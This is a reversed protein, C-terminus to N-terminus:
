HGAPALSPRIPAMDFPGLGVPGSCTSSLSDGYVSLPAALLDVLQPDVDAGLRDFVYVFASM